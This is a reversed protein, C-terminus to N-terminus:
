FNQNNFLLLLSKEGEVLVKKGKFFEEIFSLPIDMDEPCFLRPSLYGPSKQSRVCRICLLVRQEIQNKMPWGKKNLMFKM